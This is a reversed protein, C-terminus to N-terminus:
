ESLVSLEVVVEPSGDEVGEAEREVEVVEERSEEEEDVEESVLM